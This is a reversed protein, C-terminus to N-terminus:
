VLSNGRGVLFQNQIDSERPVVVSVDSGHENRSIVHDFSKGGGLRHYVTQSSLTTHGADLGVVFQMVCPVARAIYETYLFVFSYCYVLLNHFYIAINGLETYKTPYLSKQILSTHQIRASTYDRYKERFDLAIRSAMFSLMNLLSHVKNYGTKVLIAKPSSRFSPRTSLHRLSCLQLSYVCRRGKSTGRQVYM